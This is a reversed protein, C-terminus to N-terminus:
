KKDEYNSNAELLDNVDDMNKWAESVESDMLDFPEEIDPIIKTPSEIFEFKNNIFGNKVVFSNDFFNLEEAKNDLIFILYFVLINSIYNSLSLNTYQLIDGVGSYLLNKNLKHASYLESIHDRQKTEKADEIIGGQNISFDFLLTEKDISIIYEDKFIKPCPKFKNGIASVIIDSEYISKKLQEENTISFFSYSQDDGLIMTNEDFVTINCNFNKFLTSIEKGISGYGLITVNSKTNFPINGLIIGQRNLISMIMNFGVRASLKSIIEKIIQNENQDEIYEIGIFSAKKDSIQKVKIRNRLANTYSIVTHEEELLEIYENKLFYCTLFNCKEIILNDSKLRFSGSELFDYGSVKKYFDVYIDKIDKYSKFVRDKLLKKIRSQIKFDINHYDSLSFTNAEQLNKRIYLFIKRIEEKEKISFDLSKILILQNKYEREIETTFFVNNGAQIILKATEPTILYRNNTEESLIGINM